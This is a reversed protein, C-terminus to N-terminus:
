ERGSMQGLVFNVAQDFHRRSTEEMEEAEAEAQAMIRERKAKAAERGEAVIQEAQQHAQALIRERLISAAEKAEEIMRAAQSEADNHVKVAEQEISLIRAITEQSL